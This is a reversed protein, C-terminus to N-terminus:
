NMKEFIVVAENEFKKVFLGASDFRLKQRAHKDVILYDIKYKDLIDEAKKRDHTFYLVTMDEYRKYAEKQRSVPMYQWGEVLIRREAFASYYFFRPNDESILFVRRAGIVADKNTNDRLFILGEYLGPTLPKNNLSMLKTNIGETKKVMGWTDGISVLLLIVIVLKIIGAKEAKIVKYLYGAALINLCIYGVFLFYYQSDGRYSLIYAPIFSILVTAGLFVKDSSINKTRSFFGRIFDIYALLRFSFFALLYFPIFALISWLNEIEFHSSYIRYIYTNKMIQLPVLNFGEGGPRLGYIHFYVMIFVLFSGCLLNVYRRLNNEGTLFAYLFALFIGGFIVPFFSGKAGSVAFVLLLILVFNREGSLYDRIEVILFLTILVALFFTPSFFFNKLFVNYPSSLLATGAFMFVFSNIIGPDRNKYWRSGAFYAAFLLLYIFLIIYLRLFLLSISIDTMFSLFAIFVYFFVHYHFPFGSIRIDEPPWHNKIEAINGIHWPFDVNYIVAEKGPLINPIFYMEITLLLVLFSFSVLLGFYKAPTKEVMKKIINFDQRLWGNAIYVVFVAAFFLYFWTKLNLLAFIIYLIIDLAIGVVLALFLKYPEDRYVGMFNIFVLGPIFVCLFICIFFKLIDQWAASYYNLIVLNLIIYVTVIIWRASKLSISM